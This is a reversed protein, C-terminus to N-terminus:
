LGLTRRLLGGNRSRRRVVHQALLKLSRALQSFFLRAPIARLVFCRRAQSAIFRGPTALVFSAVWGHTEMPEWSFLTPRLLRKTGWGRGARACYRELQEAGAPLSECYSIASQAVSFAPGERQNAAVRAAEALAPACHTSPFAFDGRHRIPSHRPGASNSSPFWGNTSGADRGGWPPWRPEGPSCM